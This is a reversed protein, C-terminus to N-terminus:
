SIVAEYITELARLRLRPHFKGAMQRAREIKLSAVESKFLAGLIAHTLENPDGPPVLFGSMGQDLRRTNIETRSAVVAKGAVLAEAVFGDYDNRSTAPDVWADVGSLDDFSPPADFVLWDVDDRFRHIRSLTQEIMNAVGPRHRHFTGIVARAAAARKPDPRMAFWSEDVAEPLNDLPSVIASPQRAKRWAFRRRPLGSAIYPAAPAEFGPPGYLHVLAAGAPDTLEHRPSLGAHDIQCSKRDYFSAGPLLVQAIRM